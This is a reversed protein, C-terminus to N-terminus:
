RENIEITIHYLNKRNLLKVTGGHIGLMKYLVACHLRAEIPECTKLLKEMTKGPVFVQPEAEKDPRFSLDLIVSSEGTEVSIKKLVSGTLQVIKIGSSIIKQLVYRSGYVTCRVGSVETKEESNRSGNNGYMETAWVEKVLATFLVNEPTTDPHISLNMLSIVTENVGLVGKYIRQVIRYKPDDPPIDRELLGAFGAIGGLGNKIKHVVDTILEPDLVGKEPDADSVNKTKEM